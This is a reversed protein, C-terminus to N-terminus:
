TQVVLCTAVVYMCSTYYVSQVKDEVYSYCIESFSTFDLWFSGPHLFYRGHVLVPIASFSTFDFPPWRRRNKIPKFTKTM